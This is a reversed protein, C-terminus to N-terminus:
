PIQTTLIETAARLQDPDLEGSSWYGLFKKASKHAEILNSRQQHALAQLYFSRVFPVPQELHESGSTSAKQLWVLAAEPRHAALEVEALTTWIPVHDPFVHWTFEIGNAPLLASARELATLATELDGRTLALLGALHHIQREEVANPQRRWRGRLIELLSDAAKTRGLAEEALAALYYGRLEPWQGQGEQQAKQAERLAQENEHCALLLEVKFCRALARDAQSSSAIAQDLLALAETSKGHYLANRALSVNGRWRAFPSELTRLKQAERKAGEWDERLTDLRWRGYHLQPTGDRVKALRDFALGAEQYKGWETLHWALSYQLWWIDPSEDAAAALQLYGTEFEGLAAYANAVGQYNGWYTSGSAILQQFEDIAQEYKEFFAYRRALNNRWGRQTPYVRLALAYTEIAQGTTAWRTGYYGAEATFRHLLPLREALEFARQAFQQAEDSRGQGQHLKALTVFALAFGPDIQIAEELKAIAAEPKSHKINLTQAETFAQLAPLSSTVAIQVTAPSPEPRHANFTDLVAASMQDVLHFLSEEGQGELTESRLKEGTVPNEISYAIRLVDGLRAFSGRIIAEVNGKQAAKLVIEPPLSIEQYADLSKLIHHVQGTSLVALGPSQSLDTVLLEVIGNSLWDLEPDGTLNQFFLVALSTRPADVKAQKDPVQSDASPPAIKEWSVALVGTLFLTIVITTLINRRSVKPLVRPRNSLLSATLERRRLDELDSRLEEASQYRDAPDKELCRSIIETLAQPLGKRMSSIALPADNLIAPIRQLAGRAPFPHQGTAMLYLVVGLSFLDSRADVSENKLQEPAMYSVTGILMGDHSLAAQVKATETETEKSTIKAIGFDLIKVRGSKTVMVNAPKLDRHIVGQEHAAALADTLETAIQLFQELALGGEPITEHLTKGEIMEMTLFRIGRDEEISHITVIHPHNLAALARAEREFRELWSPHAAMEPPLTKVAIRRGLRADEGIYVQGMGGAGLHGVIKYAGLRRKGLTRQWTELSPLSSTEENDASSLDELLTEALDELSSNDAAPPLIIKTKPPPALMGEFAPAELFSSLENELALCALAEALLAQDEGCAEELFSHREEEPREFVESLLADLQRERDLVGASSSTEAAMNRRM